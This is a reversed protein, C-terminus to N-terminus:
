GEKNSISLNGADRRMRSRPGGSISHFSADQRLSTELANLATISTDAGQDGANGAALKDNDALCKPYFRRWHKWRMNGTAPLNDQRQRQLRQERLQQRELLRPENDTLQPRTTTGGSAFRRKRQKPM